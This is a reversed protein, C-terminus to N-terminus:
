RSNLLLYELNLQLEFNSNMRIEIFFDNMRKENNVPISRKEKPHADLEEFECSDAPGELTALM